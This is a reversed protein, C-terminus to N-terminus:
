SEEKRKTRRRPRAPRFLLADRSLTVDLDPVTALRAQRSARGARYSGAMVDRVAAADLRATHRIREHRDLVFLPAFTAIAKEIRDQELGKGLILERVEILDDPAPVVLLLTGDDRLVRRFEEPNRQATISAVLRFSAGAYPLFRDANAMVWHLGPRQRAAAEIAAVSIDLGYGECGFRETIVALHHGEGCGVDLVADTPELALLGAIRDTIPTEFGRAILRGRAQVTAAGDGPRASRRDQAQLLNVYGTRAVDFSHGRSCVLRRPDRALPLRCGRVQCLLRM